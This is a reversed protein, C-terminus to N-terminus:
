AARYKELASENVNIGLGPGTLLALAGAPRALRGALAGGTALLLSRRTLRGATM